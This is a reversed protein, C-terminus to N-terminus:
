KRGRPKRPAPTSARLQAAKLQLQLGDVTDKLSAIRAREGSLMGELNRARRMEELYATTAEQFDKRAYDLELEVVRTAGEARAARLLVDAFACAEPPAAARLAALVEQASEPTGFLKCFEALVGRADVLNRELREVRVLLEDREDETSKAASRLEEITKDREAITEVADDRAEEMKRLEEDSEKVTKVDLAIAEAGEVLETATIRGRMVPGRFVEHTADLRAFFEWPALDLDIM